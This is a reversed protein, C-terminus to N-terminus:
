QKIFKINQKKNDGIVEIFYFGKNLNTLDLSYNNEGANFEVTETRLLAGISNYINMAAVFPKESMLHITIAEAAPNPFLNINQRFSNEVIGVGQGTTLNDISFFAPTNMGWMGVDSSTLKFYISDVAGLKSCDVWQWTKLIYDLSNNGFRFDALYFKVTDAKQTGGSYGFVEMLFWDPDNGSAGGFKKGIADGNKMSKYAYTTNTAYFGSVGTSPAKVRIFGGPQGTAYYNSLNYGKGAACNYLHRYNGSDPNNKNTYAFGDSWYDGWSSKTWTYQFSANTTQWDASTTDNYFSDTPLVFSEFDAVIQSRSIGFILLALLTITKKM